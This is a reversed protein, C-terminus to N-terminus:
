DGVFVCLLSHVLTVLLGPKTPQVLTNEEQTVTRVPGHARAVHEQYHLCCSICLGYPNSRAVERSIFVKCKPARCRREMPGPNTFLRNM